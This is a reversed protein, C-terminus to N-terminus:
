NTRDWHIQRSLNDLRGQVYTEDTANLSGGDRDRMQGAIERIQNLDAEARVMEKHNLSGDSEGRDIRHQLYDIREWAAPPADHWFAAPDWAAQAFASFPVALSAAATLTLLTRRM